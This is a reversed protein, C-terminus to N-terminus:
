YVHSGLCFQLYPRSDLHIPTQFYADKIDISFIWDGKQISGLVLAVTELRFNTLTVFSNLASLDIVPRWSGTSMEVLFVCSYFGPGPQDVIELAGKQLMKEVEQFALARVSGPFLVSAGLAGAVFTPPLSVSGQLGISCTSLGSRPAKPSGFVGISCFSMEWRHSDSFRSVRM